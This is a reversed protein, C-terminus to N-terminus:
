ENETWERNAPDSKGVEFEEGINSSSDVLHEIPHTIATTTWPTMLAINVAITTNPNIRHLCAVLLPVCLKM